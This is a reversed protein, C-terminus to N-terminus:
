KLVVNEEGLADRLKQLCETDGSCWNERPSLLTRKEEPIHLYVPVEGPHIAMLACARDLNERKLRLFLKRPSQRATEASDQRKEPEAAPMETKEKEKAQLWTEILSIQEALLKPAEEERISLRGTIIVATDEQLMAQYREYVKPFVLCEIEGTLDELTAFAMYDGKKTAKGKVATLIGGITVSRGDLSMGHDPAEEIGELEATHFLSELAERWEDLPHGSMYVGTAEKEM